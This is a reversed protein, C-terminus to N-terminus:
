MVPCWPGMLAFKYKQLFDGSLAPHLYKLRDAYIQSVSLDDRSGVTVTGTAADIDTVYRPKGDAAPQKIDLGKRQGITYNWAGDHEKLARGETDM